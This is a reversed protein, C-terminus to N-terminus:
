KLQAIKGTFVPVYLYFSHLHTSDEQHPIINRIPLASICLDRIKQLKEKFM